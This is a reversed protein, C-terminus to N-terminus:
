PCRGAYRTPTRQVSNNSKQESNGGYRMFYKRLEGVITGPTSSDLVYARGQLAYWRRLLYQFRLEGTRQLLNNYTAEDISQFKTFDFNEAAPLPATSHRAQQENGQAGGQEAMYWEDRLRQVLLRLYAVRVQSEDSGAQAIAKAWLGERRNGAQIEWVAQAHLEEDVLRDLVARNKIANWLGM